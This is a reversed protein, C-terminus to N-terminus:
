PLYKWVALRFWELVSRTWIWAISRQGTDIKAVGEMGPRLKSSLEVLRAEVRFSNRGEEAVTVPTIKSLVLPLRDDPMGAFAVNGQQQLSIYRVDRESVHVILRYSDLPALEFLVKGKEVPSGLMQSHDGSVVIGDFPAVIRTRAIKEDALALQSDAQRIQSALIVMNSRDHKALAERSKQLLKDREARWKLQDLVLDRDDLAALLDGSKVTDGARIPAFRIFGDFPAVAASQIEGELVSKGTVRHEGTALMLTVAAAGALVVGLKLAPRRPGLLAKLGAGIHDIVRGAILRNARLQLAVVPGLLVAIAEALQLAEVDFSQERHREFTIAGVQAHNSGRMVVSIVSVGSMRVSETFARHAMTVTRETSTLPPYAISSHQDLAEEMANEIADVIRSQNKFSASHSIARLRISGDRRTVGLSVRDCQLRAALDNAIVMAMAQLGPQEGIVALLDL